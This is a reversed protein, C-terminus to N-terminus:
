IRRKPPEKDGWSGDYSAASKALVDYAAALADVQDDQPDKIGTFSVIESVFADAWPANVPVRVKGANWAAAVPQARVYKDNRALEAKIGLLDATGEETTSTYWRSRRVSWTQKLADLLAKFAPMKIQHREVARLYYIGDLEYLVIGVSWNSHTKESYACDVGLAARAGNWNIQTPDYTVVDTFVAGGRARPEGQWLSAWDYANAQRYKELFELPRKEPWLALGNEDIAPLRIKTWGRNLVRGALDDVHWRTQVVMKSASPHCRTLAVSSLWDDARQRYVGSEAELRNKIPDDILLLGDVPEGTLPGGIGTAFLSGGDPTKWFKRNGKTTIGARHALERAKDSIKEAREAEYTVYAHRRTPLRQLLWVLGHACTETKGHQPPTSIVFEDPKEATSEIAAVLPALHRPTELDPSLRPILDNLPETCRQLEAIEDDSLEALVQARKDQPVKAFAEAIARATTV